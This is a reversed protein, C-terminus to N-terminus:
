MARARCVCACMGWAPPCPPTLAACSLPPTPTCGFAQSCLPHRKSGGASLGSAGSVLCCPCMDDNHSSYHNEFTISGSGNCVKCTHKEKKGAASKKTAAAAPKAPEEQNPPPPPQQQQRKLQGQLAELKGLAADAARAVAIAEAPSDPHDRTVTADAATAPTEAESSSSSSSSVSAATAVSARGKPDQQQKKGGGGGASASGDTGSYLISHGVGWALVGVAVLPAVRPLVTVSARAVALLAPGSVARAAVRGVATLLPAAVAAAARARRRPGGQSARTFSANLCRSGAFDSRQLQPHGRALTSCRCPAPM